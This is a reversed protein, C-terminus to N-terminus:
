KNLKSSDISCCIILFFLSQYVVDIWVLNTEFFSVILTACFGALAYRAQKLNYIKSDIKSFVLTLLVVYVLFIPMGYSAIIYLISNHINFIFFSQLNYNSGIGTIYNGDLARLVESWIHERGSYLSKTTFPINFTINHKWLYTYVIVFIISGIILGWVITYIVFKKSLIKKPLLYTIGTFTIVGLLAGRSELKLIVMMSCLIIGGAVLKSVKYESFYICGYIMGLMIFYSIINPNIYRDYFLINYLWNMMMFFSITKIQKNTLNYYQGTILTIFIIIIILMSGLGMNVILKNFLLFIVSFYLIFLEIKSQKIIKNFLFLLVILSGLSYLYISFKTFFNYTNINMGTCIYYLFFLICIAHNIDYLKIKNNFKIKVDFVNYM